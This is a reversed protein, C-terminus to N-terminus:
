IFLITKKWLAELAVSTGHKHLTTVFRAITSTQSFYYPLVLSRAPNSPHGRNL